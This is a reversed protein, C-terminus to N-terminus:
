NRSIGLFSQESYGSRIGDLGPLLQRDFRQAPGEQSKSAAVRKHLFRPAAQHIGTCTASMSGRIPQAERGLPM